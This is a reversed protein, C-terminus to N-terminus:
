EIELSKQCDQLSDFIEGGEGYKGSNLKPVYQFQKGDNLVNIKGVLKGDLYVLQHMLRYHPQPHAYLMSDKFSKYTINSM